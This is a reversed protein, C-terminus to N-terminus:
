FKRWLDALADTADPQRDSVSVTLEGDEISVEFGDITPAYVTDHHGDSRLRTEERLLGADELRDVCRYVTPLSADCHDTLETASMPEVSTATLITRAHESDLLSVLTPLDPDESM